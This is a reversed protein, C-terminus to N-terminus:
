EIVELEVIEPGDELCFGEVYQGSYLKNMDWKADELHKYFKVYCQHYDADFALVYIKM